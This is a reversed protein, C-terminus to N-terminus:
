RDIVKVRLKRIILIIRVYIFRNFFIDHICNGYLFQIIIGIQYFLKSFLGHDELVFDPM